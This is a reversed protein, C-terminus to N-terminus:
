LYPDSIPLGEAQRWKLWLDKLFEKGMRRWSRNNLHADTYKITHGKKKNPCKWSQGVKVAVEDCQKCTPDPHKYRQYEKYQYYLPVYEPTRQKVFQDAVLYVTAKLKANYHATEGPQRKEAKGDIVAYGSFRWLKSVTDFKGIDDIQALLRAALSGSKLGRIDSIWPWVPIMSAADIMQKEMNRIVTDIDLIDLFTREIEASMDSAGREIASIRLLHRKRMELCEDFLQYAQYLLVNKRPKPMNFKKDDTMIDREKNHTVSKHNTACNSQIVCPTQCEKNCESFPNCPIFPM